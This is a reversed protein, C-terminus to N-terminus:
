FKHKSRLFLKLRSVEVWSKSPLVRITFNLGDAVAALMQYDSGEYRTVPSGDPAQSEVVGWMPMYPLATVNVTAGYFRYSSM